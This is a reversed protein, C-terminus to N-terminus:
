NLSDTARQLGMMTQLTCQTNSAFSTFKWVLYEEQSYLTSLFMLGFSV